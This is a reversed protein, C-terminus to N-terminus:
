FWGLVRNGGEEAARYARQTALERLVDLEYGTEADSAVGLSVRLRLRAGDVQLPVAIVRRRLNEAWVHAEAATFGRLLVEFGAEDVDARGALSSSPPALLRAIDVVSAFAADAVERHFGTALEEADELLVGVIAVAEGTTEAERVAERARPLYTMPNRLGTSPDFASREAQRAYVEDTRIVVMSCGAATVLATLVLLTTPTGLYTEFTSSEPGSSLYVTLRLVYYVGAALLVGALLRGLRHHRLRGRLAAVGALLGGAATGLLTAWGGAWEGGDPGPLIAALATATVVAATVGLFPRRGDDARVGNWMAMTTLVSAGNGLGVFFWLSESSAAVVYCLATVVASSLALTWVLDVPSRGRSAVEIVFASTVITIVLIAVVYLTMVDLM